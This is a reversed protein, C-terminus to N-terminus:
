LFHICRRKGPREVACHFQGPIVLSFGPALGAFLVNAPALPDVGDDLEIFINGANYEDSYSLPNSLAAAGDAVQPTVTGLANMYLLVTEGPV